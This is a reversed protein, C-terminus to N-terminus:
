ADRSRTATADLAALREPTLELEFVEAMVQTWGHIFYRWGDHVRAPPLQARAQALFRLEGRYNFDWAVADPPLVAADSMPSGPRDKGAGTANIILSGPAMSAVLADTDAEDRVLQLEVAADSALEDIIARVRDLRERRRGTVVIREPREAQTVLHAVVAAGSGGAGLCLVGAGPHERWHSPPMFDRLAVGSAIPDTARGCLRGDRKSICSIEGCLRAWPELEDFLDGAGEFVSVKHSTVLAGRVGPDDRVDQVARRYIAPEGDLPLDLGVVEADLGLLAAWEPFLQMIQSRATTVGMFVLRETM